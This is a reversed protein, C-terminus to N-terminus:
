LDELPKGCLKSYFRCDKVNWDSAQIDQGQQSPLDDGALRVGGEEVPELGILRTVNNQNTVQWAGEGNLVEVFATGEAQSCPLKGGERGMYILKFCKIITRIKGENCKDWMSVTYKYM